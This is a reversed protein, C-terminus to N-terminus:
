VRESKRKRRGLTKNGKKAQEAGKKAKKQGADEDEKRNWSNNLMECWWPASNDYKDIINITIEIVKRRFAESHDIDFDILLSFVCFFSICLKRNKETNWSEWIRRGVYYIIILIM